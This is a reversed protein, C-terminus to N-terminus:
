IEAKPPEWRRKRASTKRRLYDLYHLNAQIDDTNSVLWTRFLETITASRKRLEEALWYVVRPKRRHQDELRTWFEHACIRTRKWSLSENKIREVAAWLQRDSWNGTGAVDWPSGKPKSRASRARAECEPVELGALSARRLVRDIRKSVPHGVELEPTIGGEVCARTITVKGIGEDALSSWRYNVSDVARGILRRLARAGTGLAVAQEAIADLADDAFELEVGHVRALLQQQHLASEEVQGNLIGRLDEVSLEHLVAVTAFRGVFEPIMGFEVLDRTQAQCLARYVPRADPALDVAEVPQAAFGLRSRVSGLRREVIAPLGVFAGTCIFLLRSTDVGAHERGELGHSMRGDLMTLLANQVGEGSVDRGWSVEGRRIKDIEDIFVIGREAQKPDDGARSLLAEIITEVSNGKYGAEVLGAASSFGVPVGLYEALKRVLYTKGVGTPGMLLIHHQGLSVGNRRWHAQSLYHNYVGVVLDRKARIQGHVFRDLYAIMETTTPLGSRRGVVTAQRRRERSGQMYVNGM